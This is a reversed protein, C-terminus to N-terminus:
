RPPREQHTPLTTSGSRPAFFAVYTPATDLTQSADWGAEVCLLELDADAALRALQEPTTVLSHEDVARREAGEGWEWRMHWHDGSLVSRADVVGLEHVEFDFSGTGGPSLAEVVAPNHTEVVVCGNDSVLSRLTRLTALQEDRNAVMSITACICLALNRETTGRYTRMDDEVAVIRGRDREPDDTWSRLSALLDPSSDVAIVDCGADALPVTIRGTGAGLEVVTPARDELLRMLRDVVPSAESMPFFNDYVDAFQRGYRRSQDPFTPLGDSETTSDASM